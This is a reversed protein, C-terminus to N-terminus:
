KKSLAHTSNPQWIVLRRETQSSQRRIVKLLIPENMNQAQLVAQMEDLTSVPTQAVEKIVDYLQLQTALKSSRDVKMVLLGSSKPALGLQRSIADDVQHLTLGIQEISNPLRGSRPLSSHRDVPRTTLVITITIRKNKRLLTLRVRTGIKSLSVLNILHSEDQVETSDFRLIVDDVQLRAKAAPTNPYVEVVRTGQVRSLGLRRARQPTFDSDLLVGLYARHVKNFELLQDVVKRVLNSPISFGIGENGGSNSAIATNIAIVRGELNVLPGGSNGPNIAADTQLFDQNIVRSGRGLALSRRGKASIIGMTMSQSLGFPSGFALVFHGIKVKDSDGWRAPQLQSANVRMVAVDSAEDEWVYTPHIVRGDHLYISIDLLKASAVVHRNTVVFVGTAKTSTMLVGSGTEEVRGGRGGDTGKESLIQVVSPTTLKAIKSLTQSGQSLISRGTGLERYIADLQGRSLANAQSVSTPSSSIAIVAGCAV